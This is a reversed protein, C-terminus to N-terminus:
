SSTVLSADQLSGNLFWTALIIKTEVLTSYSATYFKSNTLNWHYVLSLLLINIYLLELNVKCWQVKLLSKVQM